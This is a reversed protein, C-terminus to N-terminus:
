NNEESKKFFCSCSLSSKWIMSSVNNRSQVPFIGCEIVRGYIHCLKYLRYSLALNLATHRHM